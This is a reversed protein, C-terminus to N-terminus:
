VTFCVRKEMAEEAIEEMERAVNLDNRIITQLQNSSMNEELNKMLEAIVVGLDKQYDRLYNNNINEKRNILYIGECPLCYWTITAKQLEILPLKPWSWCCIKASCFMFVQM